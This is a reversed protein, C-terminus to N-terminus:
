PTLATTCVRFSFFCGEKDDGESEVSCTLPFVLFWRMYLQLSRTIRETVHNLRQRLQAGLVM